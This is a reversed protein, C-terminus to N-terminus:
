KLGCEADGCKVIIDDFTLRVSGVAFTAEVDALTADPRLTVHPIYGYRDTVPVDNERLREMLTARLSFLKASNILAVLANPQKWRWFWGAGTMEARIIEDTWNWNNLVECAREADNASLTKGLHLLTVHQTGDMLDRLPHRLREDWVPRLMTYFGRGAAANTKLKNVIESSLM